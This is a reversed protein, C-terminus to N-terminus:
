TKFIIEFPLM